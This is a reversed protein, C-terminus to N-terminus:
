EALLAGVFEKFEETFHKYKSTAPGAFGTHIRRVKDNKDIFIMTPYSLVANLMPLTEAAEKKSSSGNAFLVDYKVDFRDIFRQIAKVSKAPEKHKEYALGIVALDKSNLNNYYDSLFATEDACNPCWTGIIQLIKVKGKYKDDDLSVMNGEIDPFSFAIKDYGEKLYTLSDADVLKFNPDRKGVWTTKYHNGSWFAGILSGDEKVKAEFLFAHSGDFCSLYLKDAQITGQLYRFDGTETQFTGTVYNGEQKFEGLAPYPSDTDMGFQVAWSGNLDIAPEKKLASFRHTVSHRAVFHISYDKKTEVIWKGEMIGEEYFAEIRSEYHPFAIVLTDDGTMKNHGVSIENVRIREEGNIVEVYIKSMMFSKM